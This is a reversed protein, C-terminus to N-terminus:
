RCRTPHARPAGAPRDGARGAGRPGRLRRHSGGAAVSILVLMGAIANLSRNRKFLVNLLSISGSLVLAAFLIHRILDPSYAHRLEPTTLYQPYHFAAVGLLSLIALTLALVGSALGLGKPLPGSQKFLESTEQVAAGVQGIVKNKM